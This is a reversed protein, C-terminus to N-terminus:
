APWVQTVLCHGADCFSRDEFREVGIRKGNAFFEDIVLEVDDALEVGRVDREQGARVSRRPDVDNGADAEM